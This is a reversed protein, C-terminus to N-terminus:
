NVTKKKGTKKNSFSNQHELMKTITQEVVYIRNTFTFM